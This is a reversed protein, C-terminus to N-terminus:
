REVRRCQLHRRLASYKLMGRVLSLLVLQLLGRNGELSSSHRERFEVDVAAFLRRRLCNGPHFVLPL